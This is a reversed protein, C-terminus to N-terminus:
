GIQGRKTNIMPTGKRQQNIGNRVSGENTKPSDIKGYTWCLCTLNFEPLLKGCGKCRVIGENM